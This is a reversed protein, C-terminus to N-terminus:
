SEIRSFRDRTLHRSESTRNSDMQRVIRKVRNYYSDYEYYDIRGIGNYINASLINVHLRVPQLFTARSQYFFDIYRRSRFLDYGLLPVPLCSFTVALAFFITARPPKWRGPKPERVGHTHTHTQWQSHAYVFSLTGPFLVPSAITVCGRAAGTDLRLARIKSGSRSAVRSFM